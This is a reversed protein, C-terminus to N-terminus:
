SRSKSNESLPEFSIKKKENTRKTVSLGHVSVGNLPKATKSKLGSIYHLPPPKCERLAQLVYSRATCVENSPLPSQTLRFGPIFEPLYNVGDFVAVLSADHM